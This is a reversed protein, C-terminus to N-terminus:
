TTQELVGVLEEEGSVGVALALGDGPMEELGELGLNGTRRITNWSIVSGAIRRPRRLVGAFEVGVQDVGLLGAADEVTEVTVLDARHQPLLDHRLQRRAAHLGDRRADDHLAFALAHREPRRRVPVDGRVSSAPASALGRLKPARRTM